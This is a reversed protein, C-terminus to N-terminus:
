ETFEHLTNCADCTWQGSSGQWYVAVEIDCHCYPCCMVRSTIASIPEAM